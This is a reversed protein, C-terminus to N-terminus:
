RRHIEIAAIQPNNRVPLLDINLEGDSVTTNFSKVLARDHGAEQHIDLKSYVRQGEIDIDFTRRGNRTFYTEAFHLRVEYDGNPVLFQYNLPRQSWWPGESYRQTQYISHNYTNSIPDSTTHVNSSSSFNRDKRWQKGDSDVYHYGSSTEGVNMFASRGVGFFTRRIKPITGDENHDFREGAVSRRYWNGNSLETTHYFFYWQGDKEVTSSHNTLSWPSLLRDAMVGRKQFPGIPNDATAYSIDSIIGNGAYSLYYIGNHKHIWPAEFFNNVGAVDLIPGDLEIMNDKLKVVRPTMRATLPNGGEKATAIPDDNGFYMYAKGDDDILVAPDITLHPANPMSNSVLPYGLADQFPGAPSTSTAVGIHRREVPFFLYYIGNREVVDPAWADKNAWSIDDLHFVTGHDTWEDLDESSYARWDRMDFDGSATSEDHTTYMWFRGEFYRVAPDATYIDTVIPNASLAIGPWSFIVLACLGSKIRSMNM